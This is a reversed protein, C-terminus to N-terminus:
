WASFGGDVVLCEGTIYSAEQSALFVVASAIEDASAMRGLMTKRSYAQVFEESQREGSAIGGAVVANVRAARAGWFAALWRTMSLAAGKVAAYQIPTSAMGPPYIKPDVGVVGYVSSLLVISASGKGLRDMTERFLLLHGAIDVEFLRLFSEQTVADFPKGIGERLSANAILITPLGVSDQLSDVVGRISAPDSLDLRLPVYNGPHAPRNQEVWREAKLLDRSAVAVIAGETALRIAIASGLLGTAGTVLAISGRLGKM